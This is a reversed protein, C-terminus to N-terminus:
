PGAVAGADGDRRGGGDDDHPDHAPRQDGDTVVMGPPGAPGGDQGPARRPRTPQRDAELARAVSEDEPTLRAEDIGSSAAVVGRFLAEAAARATRATAPEPAIEGIQRLLDILQKINRVFDGGSPEEDELVDDLAGGAAWAHAVGAFTADPLRTPPLRALTEDRNLREGLQQMERWRARAEADPFWAQPPVTRARHEYTFCSALAATTPPDLGDLLGAALSEAVLLDCEHYCRALVMGRETLGWEAVYGWDRLLDLLRRFRRAVTDGVTDIQRTLTDVETQARELRVAARVLADREPHVHLPHAELDAQRAAPPPRPRPWRSIPGPPPTV